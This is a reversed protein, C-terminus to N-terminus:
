EIAQALKGGRALTDIATLFHIVDQKIGLKSMAEFLYLGMSMDGTHQCAKMVLGIAYGNVSLGHKIMQSFTNIALEKEGAIAFANIM